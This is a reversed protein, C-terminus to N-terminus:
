KKHRTIIEPILSKEWDNEKLWQQEKYDYQNMIAVVRQGTMSDLGRIIVSGKDTFEIFVANDEDSTKIIKDMVGLLMLFRPLNLVVRIGSKRRLSQLFVGYDIYPRRYVKGRISGGRVGDTVHIEINGNGNDELCCHETMGGFKKDVPLNKIIDKVTDSTLTVEGCDKRRLISRLLQKVKNRVPSVLLCTVGNSAVTSGDERVHINDLGPIDADAKVLGVGLLNKKNLYM